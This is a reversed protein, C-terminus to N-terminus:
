DFKRLRYLVYNDNTKLEELGFGPVIDGQHKKGKEDLFVCDGEINVNNCIGLNGDSYVKVLGHYRIGFPYETEPYFPNESYIFKAGLEKGYDVLERQRSYEVYPKSAPMSKVIFVGVLLIAISSLFMSIRKFRPAVCLPLLVLPLWGCLLSRENLRVNLSIYALIVPFCLTGMILAMRQRKNDLSLLVGVVVLLAVAFLFPYRALQVPINKVKKLGQIGKYTTNEEVKQLFANLKDNDWFGDINSRNEWLCDPAYPFPCAMGDLDEQSIVESPNSYVRWINSNDYVKGRLIDAERMEKWRPDISYMQIDIFHLGVAGIVCVILTTIQRIDFGKVLIVLPYLAATMLGCFMAAQYRILTGIFFLIIGLVYNHKLVVLLMGATAALCATTTFQFHTLFYLEMVYLLLLAISKVFGNNGSKLVCHGIVTISSLHIALFLWTHWEIQPMLSYLRSEIWAYFVHMYVTHYGPHGTLYGSTVWALCRDDVPEFGFPLCVVVLAMFLVNVALLCLIPRKDFLVKLMVISDRLINM